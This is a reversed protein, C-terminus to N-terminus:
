ARHSSHVAVAGRDVQPIDIPNEIESLQRELILRRAQDDHMKQVLSQIELSTNSFSALNADLQSPLEGRHAQRYENVRKESEQLRRRLEELQGDLFQSANDAVSERDQMSEEIFMGALKETVKMVTRPDRGIFDVRFADGRPLIGVNIDLKMKQVVDEMIMGDRQEDPYLKFEEILRELRTRSLSRSASLPAAPGRREDHGDVERVVGAGKAPRRARTTTSRYFDPLKRAVAATGASVIAFPVLLLWMRKRALQLLDEPKYKKGPLM